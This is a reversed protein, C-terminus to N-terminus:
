DVAPRDDTIEVAKRSNGVRVEDFYIIRTPLQIGRHKMFASYMGYKFVYFEPVFETFKGSEKVLQGNIYFAINQNVTDFNIMLDTWKGRMESVPMLRIDTTAEKVDTFSGYTHHVQGILWGNIISINAINPRSEMGLYTGRPGGVQHIQFIGGGIRDPIRPFDNPIFVSAALWRDAGPRWSAGALESRERDNECDSWNNAPDEGCDGPRVEFRQSQNGARVQENTFQFGWPTNSLSRNFEIGGINYKQEVPGASTATTVCGSLSTTLVITAILLKFM